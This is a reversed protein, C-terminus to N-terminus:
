LRVPKIKSGQKLGGQGITVVSDGETLGTVIQAADGAIAGVTVKVRNVSDARAVFVFDEGDESVIAKRPLSLADTFTGTRVRVRAFNGPRLLGETDTVDVTVKFTGNARDIVPNVLRVVGAFEKGPHADLVLTAEQGERVRNLEREPFYVRARLPSFDALRFCEKGVTVTEGLNIFRDTVRGAFPATIRMQSVDYRAQELDRWAGRMKLEMDDLEKDSVLSRTKLQKGRDLERKAIEAALNAREMALRAETDDLIALVQGRQVYDGEEVALRVVQGQRRAVLAAESEPELTATSELYTSIASRGVRTVEVPAALVEEKKDKKKDAGGNGRASRAVLLGGVVATLVVAAGGLVLVRRSRLASFVKM